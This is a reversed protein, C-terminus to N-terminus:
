RLRRVTLRLAGTNNEYFKWWDNAFVWLLGTQTASFPASPVAGIPILERVLEPPDELLLVRLAATLPLERWPWARPHNVFGILKMWPETPHRRGFRALRKIWSETGPLQGDPGVPTEDADQWWGTATFVYQAGAELILSTANWLQDARVEVECAEGAAITRLPLEDGGAERVAAERRFVSEDLYGLAEATADAASRNLPPFWRPWGAVNTWLPGRYSTHIRAEPRPQLAARAGDRLALGRAGARDMMWGLTIDALGRDPYGGGVDSHVGRFWAQEVQPRPEAPAEPLEWLTPLFSTRIEDMALAHCVQDTIRNPSLSHFGNRFLYRLNFSWGWAPFGLAGVTDWVGIFHVRVADWCEGLGGAPVAGAGRVYARYAREVRAASPDKLLGVREIMGTVSRAVFAGRSFGFLFLRDGARYHTAIATYARGISRSVGTGTAGELARRWPGGLAGVGRQYWTVQAGHSEAQDLSARYLRYVNTPAPTGFAEDSPSNWTGDCFIVINKSM